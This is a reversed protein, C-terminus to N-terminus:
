PTDSKKSVDVVNESDGRMDLYKVKSYATPYM